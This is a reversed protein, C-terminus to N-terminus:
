KANFPTCIRSVKGIMFGGKQIFDVRKVDKCKNDYNADTSLLFVVGRYKCARQCPLHLKILIHAKLIDDQREM